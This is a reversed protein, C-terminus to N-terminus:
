ASVFPPLRLTDRCVHHQPVLALCVALSHTDSPTHADTQRRPEQQQQRQQQTLTQTYREGTARRSGGDGQGQSQKTNHETAARM